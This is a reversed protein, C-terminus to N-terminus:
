PKTITFEELVAVGSPVITLATDKEVVYSIVSLTNETITVFPFVPEDDIFKYNVPIGSAKDSGYFKTSVTNGNLYTVGINDPYDNFDYDGPAGESLIIDGKAYDDSTTFGVLEGDQYVARSYQHDHGALVLDVGYEEFVPVLNDRVSQTDYSLSYPGRHLMVVTWPMTNAALDSAVWETLIEANMQDYALCATTGDCYIETDIVVFHAYGYDFSYTKGDDFHNGRMDDTLQDFDYYAPGNNPLNMYGDFELASMRESTIDGVDHNGTTAAIPKDFAFAASYKFFLNWESKIDGDDTIDGPIMVFDYPKESYDLVSLLSYAYTMYGVESNEQPDALFMFTFSATEAVPLTFLHYDSAKSADANKVRYVYTAGPTLGTLTAEFLDVYKKGIDRAKNTAEVTDVTYSGYLSYEVYATTEDPMEFNIGMSTTPDATIFLGVSYDNALANVRASLTDAVTTSATTIMTGTTDTTTTPYETTTATTTTTTITTTTAGQCAFLSLSLALVIVLIIKKYM